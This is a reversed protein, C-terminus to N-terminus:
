VLTLAAFAHPAILNGDGDYCPVTGRISKRSMQSFGLAVHRQALLMDYPLKLDDVLKLAVTM